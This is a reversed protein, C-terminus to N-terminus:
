PKPPQRLAAAVADFFQSFRQYTYVIVGFAVFAGLFGALVRRASSLWRIVRISPMNELADLRDHLNRNAVKERNFDYELRDFAAWLSEYGASSELADEFERGGRDM